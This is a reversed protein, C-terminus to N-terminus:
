QYPIPRTKTKYISRPHTRGSCTQLITQTSTLTQTTMTPPARPPSSTRLITARRTGPSGRPSIRPLAQRAGRQGGGEENRAGGGALRRRRNHHRHLPPLPYPRHRACHTTFSTTNAATSVFNSNAVSVELISTNTSCMLIRYKRRRLEDSRSKSHRVEEEFRWDCSGCDKRLSGCRTCRGLANRAQPPGIKM